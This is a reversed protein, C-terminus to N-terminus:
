KLPLPVPTLTEDDSDALPTELDVPSLTQGKPFSPMVSKCAVIKQFEKNGLSQYKQFLYFCLPACLLIGAVFYLESFVVRYLLSIGLMAGFCLKQLPVLWLGTWFSNELSLIRAEHNARTSEMELLVEMMISQYCTLSERVLQDHAALNMQLAKIEDTLKKFIPEMSLGQHSSSGNAVGGNRNKEDGKLSALNLHLTELCKASPYKKLIRALDSTMERFDDQTSPVNEFKQKSANKSNTSDALTPSDTNLDKERKSSASPELKDDLEGNNSREAEPSTHSRKQILLDHTKLVANSIQEVNIMEAYSVILKRIKETAPSFLALSDTLSATQSKHEKRALLRVTSPETDWETKCLSRSSTLSFPPVGISVTKNMWQLQKGHLPISASVLADTENIQNESSFLKMITEFNPEACRDFPIQIHRRNWKQQSVDIASGENTADM